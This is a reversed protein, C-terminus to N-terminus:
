GRPSDPLVLEQGPVILDSSIRNVAKLEALDVRHKRALAWLTDGPEVTVTRPSSATPEGAAKAREPSTPRAAKAQKPRLQSAPKRVSAKLEAVDQAQKALAAELSQLRGQDRTQDRTQDRIAEAVQQRLRGLETLHGQFDRGTHALRDREDRARMLDERQVEVTRQAEALRRQAERLEGELRSQAIRAASLQQQLGQLEARLDTITRQSQQSEAKLATEMVQLDRASSSRFWTCGGSVLLAVVLVPHTLSRTLLMM